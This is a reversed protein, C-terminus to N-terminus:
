ILGHGGHLGELPLTFECRLGDAAFHLRVEGNLDSAVARELLLRGFGSREPRSVPPGGSEIWRIGLADRLPALEWAVSVLGSRVSLAGYKAANTALEHFAMGLVVACKPNLIIEPGSLRLNSGDDYRYPAVEDLLMTEFSVGSWNGEALRSHTQALARIRGNFSQRAEEVSPGKAFSQQAISIVTALTNKVRHSLEAVLLDRQADARKRETIDLTAGLMRVPRGGERLVIANTFLWVTQGDPRLARFELEYPTDDELTGRIAEDVRVRDEPHVLNTFAELSANFDDKSVGHMPYLSDTWTVRNGPIDWEWVGVKGAQTALRLREENTRLEEEARLREVAFALQRATAVALQIEQDSFAHPTDYYTMFKGILRGNAVLPIFSLAGIRENRVTQKLSEPLDGTEVDGICVPQPDKTDATWPSHGEVAQRYADSLGRWAVFRMVRKDDFLLISARDCRLALLIAELAADYVDALTASRHLRDTFRYLASQEDMRRALSQEALRRQNIENQAARLLRANDIAIAAHAAIGAVIEESEATFVGPRDHGFFLGGLVEGSRSIVPVALYSAVPLHGAPMGHHPASRGYRPDKRIDDSRMIGTGRFTPEFVATNRPLGFKEFAARPAGSLAYLLYSEGQDGVVNYFFAGFRAGSLKTASDTVTQVIREIDLDSSLTRAIHNLMELRHETAKQKSIDAISVL